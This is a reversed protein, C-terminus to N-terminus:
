TIFLKYKNIWVKFEFHLNKNNMMNLIYFFFYNYKDSIQDSNHFSTKHWWATANPCISSAAGVVRPQPKTSDVWEIQLQIDGFCLRNFVILFVSSEQQRWGSAMLWELSKVTRSKQQSVPSWITQQFHTHLALLSNLYIVGWNLSIPLFDGGRISEWFKTIDGLVLKRANARLYQSRM